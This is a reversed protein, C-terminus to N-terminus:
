GPLWDFEGPQLMLLENDHHLFLKLHYHREGRYLPLGRPVGTAHQHKQLTRLECGSTMNKDIHQFVYGCLPSGLFKQTCGFYSAYGNMNQSTAKSGPNFDGDRGSLPNRCPEKTGPKSFINQVFAYPSNKDATTSISPKRGEAGWFGAFKATVIKHEFTQLQRSSGARHLAFDCQPNESYRERM